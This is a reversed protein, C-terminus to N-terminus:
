RKLYIFAGVGIVAVAGILIVMNKKLNSGMVEMPADSINSSIESSGSPTNVSNKQSTQINKTDNIATKGGSIKDKKKIGLFEGAPVGGTEPTYTGQSKARCNIREQFKNKRWFYRWGRSFKPPILRILKSKGYKAKYEIKREKICQRYKPLIDSPIGVEDEPESEVYDENETEESDMGDSNYYWERSKTIM